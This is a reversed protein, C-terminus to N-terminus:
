FEEDTMITMFHKFFQNYNFDIAIRQSPWNIFPKSGALSRFGAISQGRAVWESMVCIPSKDYYTFMSDDLLAMIPMTDHFPCGKLQPLTKQYYGYYYHNFLPKFLPAKGKADIYEAMEPTVISYQTVNLPYISMNPISRLVVNAAVPDGYFNAESVPTVNGPHLFAGGMVYYSKIQKMLNEYSICLIALSTLRGLSVIILEEKHKKIVNIVEFFNELQGDPLSENPVLPGLGHTGHVDTFFDASGNTLPREAGSFIKINTDGVKNQLFLTNEVAMKKPVNGYDAVIGVIEIEKAFYALILAITDDIGPDAFILVKKTM